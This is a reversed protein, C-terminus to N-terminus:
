PAFLALGTRSPDSGKDLLLRLRAASSATASARSPFSCRSATTTGTSPLRRCGARRFSEPSASLPSNGTSGPRKTGSGTSLSRPWTLASPGSRPPAVRQTPSRTSEFSGICLAAEGTQRTRGCGGDLRQRRRRTRARRAGGGAAGASRGKEIRIATAAATTVRGRPWHTEATELANALSAATEDANRSDGVVYIAAPSLCGAQDWLAIDLAMREAWADSSVRAGKIAISLRHGYGVWRQHPRVKERLKALTADSGMAVICPSELLKASAEEDSSDFHVVEVCRGLLPDIEALSQAVARATLDDRSAPKVLVPSRLALPLLLAQITPMPISGALICATHDFGTIVAPGTADLRAPDGLERKVVAELVNGRWHELGVALGKRVTPTSFGAHAPLRAALERRWASDPDSWGDLVRGLTALIETTPRQRLESGAKELRARAAAVAETAPM